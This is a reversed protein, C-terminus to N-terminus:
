QGNTGQWLGTSYLGATQACTPEVALTWGGRLVEPLFQLKFDASWGVLSWLQNYHRDFSCMQNHCTHSASFFSFHCLLGSIKALGSKVPAQFCSKTNISLRKTYM